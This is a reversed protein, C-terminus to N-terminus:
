GDIFRRELNALVQGIRLATASSGAKALEVCQRLDAVMQRVETDRYFSQIWRVAARRQGRQVPSVEHLVTTPYIIAAGAPLKFSRRGTPEHLVLEGGDYTDPATLFLTMSLDQRMPPMGMMVADVHVGYADGPGYSSYIVPSLARPSLTAVFAPCRCLAADVIADLRGIDAWRRSVQRNEKVTRATGGATDRGDDSPAGDFLRNLSAVEDASLLEDIVIATM